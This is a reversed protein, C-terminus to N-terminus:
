SWDGVLRTSLVSRGPKDSSTKHHLYHLGLDEGKQQADEYERIADPAQMDDARVWSNDEESYGKWQVLYWVVARKVTTGPTMRRERRTKMAQVSVVQRQARTTARTIRRVPPPEERVKVEEGSDDEDAHKLEMDVDNHDIGQKEDSEVAQGVLPTSATLPHEEIKDVEDTSTVDEFTIRKGIVREVEYYGKEEEM